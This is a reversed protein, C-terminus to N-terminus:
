FGTGYRRNRQTGVVNGKERYHQYNEKHLRLGSRSKETYQGEVQKSAIGKQAIKREKKRKQKM